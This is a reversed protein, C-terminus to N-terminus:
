ALPRGVAPPEPMRFGPEAEVAAGRPRPTIGAAAAVEDATPGRAPAAGTSYQVSAAGSSASAARDWPGTHGVPPREYRTQMSPPASFGGPRDTEDFRSSGPASAAPAGAMATSAGGSAAMATTLIQLMPPLPINFRSAIGEVARAAEAVVPGAASLVSGLPLGGVNINPLGGAADGAVGAGAGAGAAAGAMSRSAAGAVGSVASQAASLGAGLVTGGALAAPRAIEFAALGLSAVGGVVAQAVSLSEGARQGVEAVDALRRDLFTWTEAFGPSRDTLMFTETAAYVGVLLARCATHSLSPFPTSAPPPLPLPNLPAASVAFRFQRSVLCCLV